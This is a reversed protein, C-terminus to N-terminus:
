VVLTVHAFNLGSPLYTHLPSSEPPTLTQALSAGSTPSLFGTFSMWTNPPGTTSKSQDGHPLFITATPSPLPFSALHKAHSRPLLKPSKSPSLRLTFETAYLGVAGKLTTVPLSSEVTLTYPPGGKLNMQELLFCALKTFQTLNEGSPVFNTDTDLSLLHRTYSASVLSTHPSNALPASAWAPLTMAHAQDGQPLCIAVQEASLVQRRKSEAESARTFVMLTPVLTSSMCTPNHQTPSLTM